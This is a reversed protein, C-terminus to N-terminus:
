ENPSKVEVTGDEWIIVKVKRRRLEELGLPMGKYSVSVQTYPIEKRGEVTSLVFYAAAIKLLTGLIEVM